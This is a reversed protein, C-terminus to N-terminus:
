PRSNMPMSRVVNMMSLAPTTRRTNGFTFTFPCVSSTISASFAIAYTSQRARCDSGIRAEETRQLLGGHAARRTSSRIKQIEPQGERGRRFTGRELSKRAM